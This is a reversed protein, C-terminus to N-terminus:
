QFDVCIDPAAVFTPLKEWITRKDAPMEPFLEM